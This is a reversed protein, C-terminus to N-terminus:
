EVWAVVLDFMSCWPVFVSISKCCKCADGFNGCSDWKLGSSNIYQSFLGICACFSRQCKVDPQTCHSARLDNLQWEFFSLYLCGPLRNHSARLRDAEKLMHFSALVHPYSSVKRVAQTECSNVHHRERWKPSFRLWMRRPIQLQMLRLVPTRERSRHAKSISRCVTDAVEM